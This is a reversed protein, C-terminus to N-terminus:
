TEGWCSFLISFLYHQLLSKAKWFYSLYAL